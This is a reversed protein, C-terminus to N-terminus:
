KSKEELELIKNVRAKESTLGRIARVGLGLEALMDIQQKKNLKFLQKERTPKPKKPKSAEQEKDKDEKSKNESEKLYSDIVKENGKYLENIKEARDSETKLNKIEKESLELKKLLEVQEYKRLPYYKESQIKIDIQEEDLDPYKEMLKTKKEEYKKKIKEQEKQIKKREKIDADLAEIDHDKIGLDWTNWGMILALRQWTENRSDLANDINLMKNSLRGLPINTTGEIVNGLASWIPNDLTFGREKIIDRNFKETQISQYIKRLKSGIPPSFSLAQLLTYAHDSRTMFNDDLDKDRQKLYEMATNKATSIAKGGFGFTTLFTDLTNNIIRDTKNDLLEEKEEEESGIVAFLATQLASFIISQIVGYYIIKSTNTKFDGRNNVIDRFAKDIIRGYQMPTNAFALILRGLPNAQQQSILDPRASQQSVETTEQFDLFAQAEADAQSMGKKLYSNVRNRYFSAGGSAIAFSDAIQTPLFGLKLLYRIAAKSQEYASKGAVAQSLEAENIGRRNGSRRQKLFDSNFLFVFDSWFQKQNAFAAAAKLPNNDSWNIYNVASITQLLASRMNFFMIAGVSGNIWSTYEQMLRGGGRPMNRGTEMRFLIDELAERFKAGYIAEIKNLNEESFIQNKNEIFDALFDARVEGIAGDSMLDSNINEILWYESPEAYGRDKKSILGVADAFAMLESDSKVFDTLLKLDRASLGPVDFGAKTWLYVRVAQDVTFKVGEYGEFKDLEKKLDKRVEPYKKLLNKYDEASKQRSTNLENIGRAFPNILNEEFFKMAEEGKKGPPLFSYLLGKFDQASPPVLGTFKFGRGRLKAQADSFRKKADVGTAQELIKNFDISQKKSFDVDSIFAPRAGQVVIRAKSDAEAVKNLDLRIKGDTSEKIFSELGINEKIRFGVEAMKDGVIIAGFIDGVGEIQDGKEKIIQEVSMEGFPRGFTNVAALKGDIFNKNNVVNGNRYNIENYKVGKSNYETKKVTQGNVRNEITYDGAVITDDGMNKTAFYETKVTNKDQSVTRRETVFEDVKGKGIPVLEIKETVNGKKRTIVPADTNNDMRDWYEGSAYFAILKGNEFVIRKPGNSYREWNGWASEMSGNKDRSCICWPNSKPGWHTDIVKRVIAQSERTEEVVYETIGYEDNTKSEDKVFLEVTDPDTPKEKSKGAFQEIIENPNKYSFVDLNNKEALEVSDQLKYNDEPLKMVSTALWKTMIQEYKRRKSVPIDLGNVLDFMQDVTQSVLGEKVLDPRNKSILNEYEGRHKKSFQVDAYVGDRDLTNVKKVNNISIDQKQKSIKPDGLIGDMVIKSKRSFDAKAQVVKSKIDLQDLVDKVAKVNQMADDAFYMNNYGESFKELMWEAKAEGTSNGLGTINELPINLGQSALFQQIPVASAPPRATLVYTDSTGYKQARSMAKNFMPGRAGETVVNFESFDFEGGQELIDAGQTAFEEADLRLKKYGSVFDNMQQTLDAPMPDAQTLNDTKVEMFREGFMEKFGQKNGQVAAHNKEVIKDLLSREKRKRNRDLATELSTEVFVMSVDYGKEKFENVLKEMAKISGGTGDVVVGDANGQYKMMKGKSIKRSQAQLRGLESLQEKTLDNMNEPLGSNKKLWELSIDSNVIKFGQNELGLKKVVNSKGSGAGGALFIVKRNPQPTGDPNPVTARVGSKTTALTDDFDWTTMGRSKQSNDVRAQLQVKSSTKVIESVNVVSAPQGKSNINFEQGFTKGNIHRIGDVNIGGEIEGITKDAYRRHFPDLLTWGEGMKTTRGAGKLKVKDDYNDLAILKYNEQILKYSADFDFGALSANILYLYARTAPMAHEWEYLKGDYGVPNESWAIMEAGMRHPHETNNGVFSFYNGWVASNKKPNKRLSKNVRQWLQEHMEMHMENIQETTMVVADKKGGRIKRGKSTTEAIEKPTSGFYTKYKIGYKYKSAAGTLPPGFKLDPKSFLEDRKQKYYERIEINKGDVEILKKRYKKPIHRDSKFFLGSTALEQPMEPLIINEVDTFFNDISTQDKFDYIKTDSHLQLVKNIHNQEIEFNIEVNGTSEVIKDVDVTVKESFAVDAQGATIDAIEQKIKAKADAEKTERLKREKVRQAGSLSAQQSMIVAAGKLLQGIKSRNAATPLVNTLGDKTIGLDKQFQEAVATLESDSLNSFEPKLEWVPVQSTKGQSRVRKGNEMKPQYFYELIRRPLGLSRGLTERSVDINEGLRNIDADKKAVNEKPLIKIFKKTTNINSFFDQINKAESPSFIGKKGEKLEKKTLVKGTKPDVIKTSTTINAKPNSIKNAPINFIVSGVKGINTDTVQKFDGDPKVVKVIDSEKNTLALVNIKADSAITDDTLTEDLPTVDIDEAELRKMTEDLDSKNFDEVIAPNNKFADKISFKIRGNIFGYLTGKGDFKAIDGRSLLEVATQQLLEEKGVDSLFRNIPLNIIQANIMGPLLDMIRKDKPDFEERDFTGRGTKHESQIAGLIEKAKKSSFEVTAGEQTAGEQTTQQLKDGLVKSTRIDKIDKSTITGEKIKKALTILFTIADTEGKFNYDVNDGLVKKTEGKILSAIFVGLGGTKKKNKLDIKGSAVLEFFNVIIEEATKQDTSGKSSKALLITLLAPDTKRLYDTIAKSIGIQNFDKNGFAVRFIAHGLEHTRTELRDDKAMNEVVQFPIVDGNNTVINSGHGGDELVKITEEKLNPPFQEDSLNNIYDIAEQVTQFNQFALINRGLIKGGEKLIGSVNNFDQNIKYTNYIIKTQNDIQADTPNAIGKKNLAERAEITMEERLKVDAEKTSSKFGAYANGFNEDSRMYDRNAQLQDFESKLNDLQLNLEKETVKGDKFDQVLERAELTLEQQRVLADNYVDYFVKDMNNLKAEEKELISAQDKQIKSIQGEVNKIRNKIRDTNVGKKTNEKLSINLKKLSKELTKLDALNKRYDELKSNDSFQNMVIGKIAPVSGFGFGFMGGSFAAHDLNETIPRGAILNQTITTLSEEVTEEITSRFLNQTYIKPIWGKQQTKLLTSYKDGSMLKWNRKLMPLAVFRNFVFEAAGYGAGKLLLELASRDGPADKELESYLEGASMSALALIGPNGTAIAAFIPAQNAIEQLFFRGFNDLSDFANGFAIDKQYFMSEKAQKEQFAMFEEDLMIDRKSRFFIEGLLNKTKKIGYESGVLINETMNFFKDTTKDFLDYSALNFQRLYEQNKLKDLKEEAAFAEDLIELFEDNVTKFEKQFKVADNIQKDSYKAYIDVGKEQDEIIQQTLLGQESNLKKSYKNEAVEFKAFSNAVEVNLKSTKRARLLEGLKYKGNLHTEKVADSNMFDILKQEQTEKIKRDFLIKRAEKVLQDRTPDVIGEAKLNAKAEQMEERYKSQKTRTVYQQDGFKEFKEFGTVLQRYESSFFESDDINDVEERLRKRENPLVAAPGAFQVDGNEDYYKQAGPRPSFDSYKPLKKTFDFESKERQELEYSSEYHKENYGTLTYMSDESSMNRASRKNRKFNEVDQATATQNIFDILREFERQYALNDVSYVDGVGVNMIDFNLTISKDGKTIKIADYNAKKIKSDNAFSGFQTITTQEVKYGSGLLNYLLGQADEEDYNFLQKIADMNMESTTVDFENDYLNREEKDIFMDGFAIKSPVSGSVKTKISESVKFESSGDTKGISGSPNELKNLIEIVEEDTRFRDLKGSIRRGYKNHLKYPVPGGKILDEILEASYKFGSELYPNEYLSRINEVRKEVEKDISEAIESESEMQYQMSEFRDGRSFRMPDDPLKFAPGEITEENFQEDYFDDQDIKFLTGTAGKLKWEGDNFVYTIDPDNKGRLTTGDIYTTSLDSM